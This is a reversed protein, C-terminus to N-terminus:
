QAAGGAKGTSFEVKPKEGPKRPGVSEIVTDLTGKHNKDPNRIKGCTKFYVNTCNELTGGRKTLPPCAGQREQKSNQGQNPTRVKLSIRGESHM